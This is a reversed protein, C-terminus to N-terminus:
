NSRGRNVTTLKERVPLFRERLQTIIHNTDMSGCTFIDITALREEPWTHISVHSEALLIYGTIGSPTFQHFHHTLITAGSERTATLLIEQWIETTELQVPDDLWIDYLLHTRSLEM